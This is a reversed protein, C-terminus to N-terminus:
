TQRKPSPKRPTHEVSHSLSSCSVEDPSTHSRKSQASPDHCAPRKRLGTCGTQGDSRGTDEGPAALVCRRNGNVDVGGTDRRPQPAYFDPLERSDVVEWKFRGNNSNPLPTDNVFDFGWKAAAAEELERMHANFDKSLQEHDVAGFLNRCASPKPHETVRSETRELTPSGNSLRVGSMKRRNSKNNNGCGFLVCNKFVRSRGTTM